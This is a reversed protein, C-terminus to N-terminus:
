RILLSKKRPLKIKKSMCGHENFRLEEQRTPGMGETGNTNRTEAPETDINCNRIGSDRNQKFCCM